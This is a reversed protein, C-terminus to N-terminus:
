SRSTVRGEKIAGGRRSGRNEALAKRELAAKELIDNIKASMRLRAKWEIEVFNTNGLSVENRAYRVVDIIDALKAISAEVEKGDEDTALARYNHYLRQDKLPGFLDDYVRGEVDRLAERFRLSAEGYDDKVPRPLDGTMTEAVDHLVVKSLVTGLDNEIGIENFYLSLRQATILNSATHELVSQEKIRPTGVYRPVSALGGIVNFLFGDVQDGIMDSVEKLPNEMEFMKRHLLHDAPAVGERKGCAFVYNMEASPPTAVNASATVTAEAPAYRMDFARGDSKYFNVGIVLHAGRLHISPLLRNGVLDMADEMDTINLFKATTRRQPVFLPDQLSPVYRKVEYELPMTMVADMLIVHSKEDYTTVTIDCSGRYNPDLVNQFSRVADGIRALQEMISVRENANEQM